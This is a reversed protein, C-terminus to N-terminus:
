ERITYGGLDTTKTPIDIIFRMALLDFFNLSIWTFEGPNGLRSCQKWNHSEWLSPKQWCVQTAM